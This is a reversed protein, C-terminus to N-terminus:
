IQTYRRKPLITCRYYIYYMNYYVISTPVYIINEQLSSWREGRRKIIVMSIIIIIKASMCVGYRINIIIHNNRINNERPNTPPSTRKRDNDRPYSTKRRFPGVGGRYYFVCVRVSVSM